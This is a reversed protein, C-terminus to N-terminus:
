DNTKLNNIKKAINNASEEVLYELNQNASIFLGYILSAKKVKIQAIMEKTEGDIFNVNAEFKSRGFIGFIGRLIDNGNDFKTIQGTIIVNGKQIFKESKTKILNTDAFNPSRKLQHYIKDAFSQTIPTKNQDIFIPEGTNNAFDMIVVKEYKNFDIQAPIKVKGPQHIKSITGCATLLFIALISLYKFM